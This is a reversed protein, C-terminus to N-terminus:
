WDSLVERAYAEIKRMRYAVGSKSLPSTLMLGLEQLSSEKEQLRLAILEHYEPPMDAENVALVLRELLDIQRTAARVVKSLNATECNVQRNVQNKVSKVVRVNEFALVAQTAGIIRLFDSITDSDKIYLLYQERRKVMKLNLKSQKLATRIAQAMVPSAVVLELHYSNGPHNVSGKCLFATRLLTKQCCSKSFLQLFEPHEPRLGQLAAFQEADAEAALRATRPKGRAIKLKLQPQLGFNKGSKFMKRVIYPSDARLTLEGGGDTKPQLGGNLAIFVALEVQLCCRSSLDIRSIEHRVDSSFSLNKREEAEIIAKKTGATL